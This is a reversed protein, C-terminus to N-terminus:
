RGQCRECSIAAEIVKMRHLSGDVAEARGAHCNLCGEGTAWEFGMQDPSTYGPSMSGGSSSSYWTVPSEVLFGDVECLYTLSHRGSGVVYKVAYESLVVEPTAGLLLERHWMQGNKRVIEYRRKSASITPRMMRNVLSILWRWRDDWEAIVSRPTDNGTVVRAHM